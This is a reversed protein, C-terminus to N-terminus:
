LVRLRRVMFMGLTIAATLLQRFTERVPTTCITSSVVSVHGTTMIHGICM